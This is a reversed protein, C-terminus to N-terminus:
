TQKWRRASTSAPFRKPTAERLIDMLRVGVLGVIVGISNSVVDVIRFSRGPVYEQWEELVAGCTILIVWCQFFLGTVGVSPQPLLLYPTSSPM